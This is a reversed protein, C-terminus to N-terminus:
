AVPANDGRLMKVLAHAAPNSCRHSWVCHLIAEVPAVRSHKMPAIPRYVVQSARMQAASAPVMAVGIGAEVLALMTPLVSDQEIRPQVGASMFVRSCLNRFYPSFRPSFGVMSLGDLERMPVEAYRVLPHERGMALLMPERELEFSELTPEAIKQDARVIAVDLKGSRLDALQIDTTLERLVTEVEPYERRYTALIRPLVRYAASSTFGLAIAGVKGEAVQRIAREAAQADALLQVARELLVRGALTLEVTRTTRTFLPTGLLQELQRIQQSLPPQAMHLRVAARGFHLEEAVVVFLRLAHLSVM